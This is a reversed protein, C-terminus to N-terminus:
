VSWPIIKLLPKSRSINNGRILVDGSVRELNPFSLNQLDTNNEIVLDGGVNQLLPVFINNLLSNESIYFLSKVETISPLDVSTNQRSNLFGGNKHVTISGAWELRPFYIHRNLSNHRITLSDTVTMLAPLKIEPLEHNREIRVTAATTLNRFSSYEPYEEDHLTYLRTDNIVFNTIETINIAWILGSEHHLQSWELNELHELHPVVLALLYDETAGPNKLSLEEARRLENLTLGTLNRNEHATISGTVEELEPFFVFGWSPNDTALVINGTYTKRGSGEWPTKEPNGTVTATGGIGCEPILFEAFSEFSILELLRFLIIASWLIYVM